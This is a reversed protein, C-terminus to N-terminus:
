TERAIPERKRQGTIGMTQGGELHKGELGQPIGPECGEGARMRGSALHRSGPTGRDAGREKEMQVAGVLEETLEPTGRSSRGKVGGQWTTDTRYGLGQARQTM